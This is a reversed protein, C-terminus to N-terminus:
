REGPESFDLSAVVALVKRLVAAQKAGFAAEFDDQARQWAAESEELKAEGRKTLRIRRSRRDDPDVAVQLLGDRQLPKLNHTLGTRDLVLAAALENMTPSGQHAVRALIARQTARLGTAALTADYLQSVHRTAKRLATVNCRGVEKETM